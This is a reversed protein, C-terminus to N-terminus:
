VVELCEENSCENKGRREKKNHITLGHLNIIVFFELFDMYNRINLIRVGFM